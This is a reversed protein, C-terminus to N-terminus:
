NSRPDHVAQRPALVPRGDCRVYCLGSYERYDFKARPNGQLLDAELRDIIGIRKDYELDARERKEDRKEDRKKEALKRLRTFAARDRRTESKM